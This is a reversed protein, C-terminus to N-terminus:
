RDLEFEEKKDSLIRGVTSRSIGLIDAIERQNFGQSKLKLVGTLDSDIWDVIEAYKEIDTPDDEGHINEIFEIKCHSRKQTRARKLENAVMWDCRQKFHNSLSAGKSPDYSAVTKCLVLAVLDYWEEEYLHCRNMYWYILDHNDAVIQQQEPTLKM